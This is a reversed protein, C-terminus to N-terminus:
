GNTNVKERNNYHKGGEHKKNASMMNKLENLSDNISKMSSDFTEKTVFNNPSFTLQEDPEEEIRFNKFEITKGYKDVTRRYLYPNQDDLFYGIKDAGMPYAMAAEKGHSYMFIINSNPMYAQVPQATMGNMPAGFTNGNAAYNYCDM